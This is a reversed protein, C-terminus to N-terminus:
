REKALVAVLTSGAQALTAAGSRPTLLIRRCGDLEVYITPGADDATRLLAFRTAPAACDGAAPGARGLEAAVVAQEPGQLLDGYVFSGGPKDTGREAAPVDYACLRLTTAGNFLDPPMPAARSRLGRSTEVWVMDAWSQSCGAKVAAASELERIAWTSVTDLRLAGLAGLVEARPQACVDRPASVRTWRGAEDRLAFWPLLVAQMRCMDAPPVQDPLRLASVLADVDTSSRETGVLDEGGDPRRQPQQDCLVVSVPVFTANLRPM